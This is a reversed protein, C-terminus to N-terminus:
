LVAMSTWWGAQDGSPSWTAYPEYPSGTSSLVPCSLNRIGSSTTAIQGSKAHEPGVQRSGGSLSPSSTSSSTSLQRSSYLGSWSSPSRSPLPSAQSGGSASSSM